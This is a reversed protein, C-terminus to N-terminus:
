KILLTLCKRPSLAFEKPCAIMEINMGMVPMVSKQPDFNDDVYSISEMEGASPMTIKTKMETLEVVRGLLDVQQKDGVTINVDYVDASSPEFVKAKYTTGKKLGKEKQLLLLGEALLAGAPWRQREVAPGKKIIMMGNPEVTGSVSMKVFSMEQQSDFALPEGRATELCTDSAGVTLSIEGRSVTISMQTTTKVKGDLVDRTNVAYGVKKGEMFIALYDEKALASVSQCHLSFIILLVCFTTKKM